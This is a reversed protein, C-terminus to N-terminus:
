RQEEGKALVIFGTSAMSGELVMGTYPNPTLSFSFLFCLYVSMGIAM